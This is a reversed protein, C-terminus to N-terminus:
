AKVAVIYGNGIRGGGGLNPQRRANDIREIPALLDPSAFTPSAFTPSALVPSALAPSALTLCALTLGRLM